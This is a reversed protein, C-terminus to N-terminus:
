SIITLIKFIIKYLVGILYGESAFIKRMIRNKVNSKFVIYIRITRLMYPFLIFANMVVEFSRIFLTLRYTKQDRIYSYPDIWAIGTFEHIILALPIIVCSVSCTIVSTLVLYPSREKIPFFERKRLFLFIIFLYILFQFMM